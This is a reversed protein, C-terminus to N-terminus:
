AALRSLPANYNGSKLAIYWYADGTNNVTVNTGIQFGNTQLAQIMDSSSGSTNMQLTTDASQNSTTFVMVSAGNRKVFVIDPVFGVGTINRNDTGDGTYTGTAIAPAYAKFATLYYNTTSGNANTGNGLQFGNTQFNQIANTTNANADFRASTDGVMSSTRFCKSVAADGSLFMIDPQFALGATTINRNDNGDGVFVATRYYQQASTGKLIVYTYITGNANVKADTGLTFGDTTFGTVGGTFNATTSALFATSDGAMRITKYVANNSGGKIIVTTGEFGVGTVTLASGTGTYVGTKIYLNARAM